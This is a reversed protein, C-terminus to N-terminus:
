NRPALPGQLFELPARACSTHPPAVRAHVGPQKYHRIKCCPRQTTRGRRPPRCHERLFRQSLCAPRPPTSAKLPCHACKDAQFSSCSKDVTGREPGGRWPRRHTGRFCSM